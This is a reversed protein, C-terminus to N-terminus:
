TIPNNERKTQKQKHNDHKHTISNHRDWKLLIFIYSKEFVTYLVLVSTQRLIYKIRLLFEDTTNQIALRPLLCFFFYSTFYKPHRWLIQLLLEFEHSTRLTIGFSFLCLLRFFFWDLSELIQIRHLNKAMKWKPNKSSTVKAKFM